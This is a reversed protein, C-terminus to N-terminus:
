CNQLGGLIMQIWWFQLGEESLLKISNKLTWILPRQLDFRDVDFKQTKRKHGSLIKM